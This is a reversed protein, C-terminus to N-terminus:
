GRRQDFAGSLDDALLNAALAVAFIALGASLAMAPAQALMPLGDRIMGGWSPQPEQVGIGMFGLASELLIAQAALGGSRALWAPWLHPLVHWRLVRPPSAGLALAARVFEEHRLGIVQARTPRAVAPWAAVAFAMVVAGLGPSMLASAALALMLRPFAMSVETLHHVLGDVLGGQMGALAGLGGGLLIALGAGPVAVALAPWAGLTLRGLVDRGLQDCGLWHVASPTEWAQSLNVAVAAPDVLAPGILALALWAGLVAM